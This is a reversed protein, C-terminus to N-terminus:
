KRRRFKIVIGIVIALGGLVLLTISRTNDPHVVTAIEVAVTHLINM